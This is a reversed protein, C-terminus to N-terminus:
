PDQRPVNLCHMQDFTLTSYKHKRGSVIRIRNAEDLEVVELTTDDIRGVALFYREGEVEGLNFITGMQIQEFREKRGKLEEEPTLVRLM